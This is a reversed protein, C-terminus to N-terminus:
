VIIMNVLVQLLVVMLLLKRNSVEQLGIIAWPSGNRMQLLSSFVQHSGLFTHSFAEPNTMQRASPYSFGAAAAAAVPREWQPGICTSHSARLTYAAEAGGIRSLVM